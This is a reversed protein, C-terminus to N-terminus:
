RLAEHLGHAMSRLTDVAVASERTWGLFGHPHDDIRLVETRVGATQLERAYALGEDVLPDLGSVIILTPPLRSFNTALLPSARPDKALSKESLYQDAYWRMREATLIYGTAFREYSSHSMTLDLVPYALVQFKLSSRDGPFNQAAVAALNGGASDGGVAIRTSDLDFAAGDEALWRCVEVADEAAPPFKYEPALRYDVSVVAIRADRCLMCCITEVMDLDGVAFGGGHFYILVPWPGSAPAPYYLRVPTDTRGVKAMNMIRGIQPPEQALVSVRRAILGRLNDITLPLAVDRDMDVILQQIRAANPHLGTSPAPAM